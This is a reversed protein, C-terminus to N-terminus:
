PAGCALWEALKTREDDTPKPDSPPMSENMAKPGFGARGDIIRSAARINDISAFSVMDGLSFAGHCRLCYSTFFAKGFSDYTLTSGTPCAAGSGSMGLAPFAPYGPPPAMPLGGSTGASGSTAGSAGSTAGSAGGKDAPTAAKGASPPGNEDTPMKTDDGGCAALGLAVTLAFATRTALTM